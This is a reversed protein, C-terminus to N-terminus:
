CVQLGDSETNRRNTVPLCAQLTQARWQDVLPLVADRVFDEDEWKWNAADTATNWLSLVSVLRPEKESILILMGGFGEHEALLPAVRERIAASLAHTNGPSAVFDVRRANWITMLERGMAEPLGGTEYTQSAPVNEELTAVRGKWSSLTM